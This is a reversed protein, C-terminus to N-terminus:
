EPVRRLPSSLHCRDFAYLRDKGGTRPRWKLAELGPAGHTCVGYLLCQRSIELSPAGAEHPSGSRYTPPGGKQLARTGTVRLVMGGQSSCVVAQDEKKEKRGKEEYVWRGYHLPKVLHLHENPFSFEVTRSKTLSKLSVAAVAIDRSRFAVDM